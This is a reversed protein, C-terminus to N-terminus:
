HLSRNPKIYHFSSFGRCYFRPLEIDQHRCTHLHLCINTPAANHGIKWYVRMYYTCKHTLMHINTFTVFFDILWNYHVVNIITIPPESFLWILLTCDKAKHHSQFSGTLNFSFSTFTSSDLAHLLLIFIFCHM